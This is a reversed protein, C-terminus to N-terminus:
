QTNLGKTLRNVEKTLEKNSETLATIKEVMNSQNVELTTLRGNITWAATAIMITTGLTVLTDKSLGRPRGSPADYDSALSAGNAM